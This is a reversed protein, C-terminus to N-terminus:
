NKTKVKIANSVNIVTELDKQAKRSDESNVLKVNQFISSHVFSNICKDLDVLLTKIDQPEAVIEQKSKMKTEASFLNSKLRIARRNIESVFKLVVAYDIPTKVSTLKFVDSNIKQIQEFDEKIAPFKRTVDRSVPRKHSDRKMRELEISRNKIDFFQERANLIAKEPNIQAPTAAASVAFLFIALLLKKIMKASEKLKIFIRDASLYFESKQL